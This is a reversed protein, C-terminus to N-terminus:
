GKGPLDFPLEWKWVLGGDPDTVEGAFILNCKELIKCSANNEPLTHARIGAINKASPLILLHRQWKLQM